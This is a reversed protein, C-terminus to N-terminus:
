RNDETCKCTSTSSFFSVTYKEYRNMSVQHLHRRSHRLTFLYILNLAHLTLLKVKSSKTSGVTWVSECPLHLHCASESSAVGFYVSVTSFSAKFTPRIEAQEFSVLRM